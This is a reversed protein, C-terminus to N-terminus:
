GATEARARVLWTAGGLRVPGSGAHEVLAERIAALARLRAAPAAQALPSALPGVRLLFELAEEVSAAVDLNEECSGLDIDVLGARELIDRVREPDALAFPGPAGPAPVPLELHRAAAAFPVTVWPNRQPAQWCLFVLRGGPRLARRLNAFADEPDEFFMVGFISLVLDFDRAFRHTQADGEVLEVAGLLGERELRERALQLLPRSLDVGVVRGRPGVARALLVTSRGGGCGVDLASEGPVPAAAALLRELLPAEIRAVVDDAAVWRPGAVENWYAKQEENM